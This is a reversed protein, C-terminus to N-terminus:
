SAGEQATVVGSTAPLRRSSTLIIALVSLLCTGIVLVLILGIGGNQVALLSALAAPGFGGGVTSALQFGLSAGTYRSSTEFQEALFAVSVAFIPTIIFAYLVIFAILTPGTDGSGTMLLFPYIFVIAGVLGGIMIGRRGYRDSLAGALPAFPICVVSAVFTIGLVASADLGNQRAYALGFSSGIGATLLFPGLLAFLILLFSKPRRLVSWLPVDEVDGAGRGNRQQDIFLPSEAIGLRIWLGVGVLVASLLFPIRWGWSMFQEDPLLSFLALLGVGLATGSVQGANVFSAAFGRHREPAHEFAMLAAGGWEGGVCIGQVVRVTVLLIPALAGVQQSTPLLGTLTTAAGMIILTWVLAPKRGFRDGVYGFILAGLPRSLYGAGLTGLSAITAAVPPLGSFFVKGFVLSAATVYLLFDYNELATGLYSSLVVRRLEKSTSSTVDNASETSSMAKEMQLGLHEHDHGIM